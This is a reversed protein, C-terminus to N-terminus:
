AIGFPTKKENLEVQRRKLFYSGTNEEELEPSPTM